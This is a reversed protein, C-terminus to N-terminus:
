RNIAHAIEDLGTDLANALRRITSLRPDDHGKELRAIHSQSTGVAQALATQSLGKGLRLAALGQQESYFDKALKKRAEALLARRKADQEHHAVLDDIEM